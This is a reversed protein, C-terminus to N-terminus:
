RDDGSQARPHAREYVRRLREKSVHTYIQTTRLDAHGLLEQVSRLDAGGELLHTAYTHRLTHPSAAAGSATDAVYRSVMARVDRPGLRRGRANFFIALPPSGERRLASRAGELYRSLAVCAVEGFPVIREKSGKGLVRVTRGRLDVHELDLGCLESVRLGAGYLLELVARDRLGAPEDAPPKELLTSLDARKMVKPLRLARKPTVLHLAPNDNRFGRRECFRYFARLTAAKRAISARAFAQPQSRWSAVVAFEEQDLTENLTALFRQLHEQKAGLPGSRRPGGTHACFGLFQELDARMAAVSNPSLNRELASHRYFAEVAARAQTEWVLM